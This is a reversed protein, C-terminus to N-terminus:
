AFFRGFVSVANMLVDRLAPLAGRSLLMLEVRASSSAAYCKCYEHTTGRERKKEVVHFPCRFLPRANEKISAKSCGVTFPRFCSPACGDRWEDNKENQPSTDGGGWPPSSVALPACPMFQNPPAMRDSVLPSVQEFPCLLYYVAQLPPSLSALSFTFTTICSWSCAHWLNLDCLPINTM